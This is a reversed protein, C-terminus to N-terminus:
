TLHPSTEGPTDAQDGFRRNPRPEAVLGGEPEFATRLAERMRADPAASELARDCWDRLRRVDEPRLFMQAPFNGGEGVGVFVGGHLGERLSLRSGAADTAEFSNRFPM